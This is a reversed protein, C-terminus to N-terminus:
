YLHATQITGEAHLFLIGKLTWPGCNPRLSVYATVDVGRPQYLHKHVLAGIYYVLHAWFIWSMQLFIVVYLLNWSVEPWSKFIEPIKRCRGPKCETAYQLQPLKIIDSSVLFAGQAFLASMSHRRLFHILMIIATWNLKRGLYYKAPM